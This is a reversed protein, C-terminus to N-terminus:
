CRMGCDRYSRAILRLEGLLDPPFCPAFGTGHPHNGVRRLGIVDDAGALGIQHQECPFQETIRLPREAGGTFETM